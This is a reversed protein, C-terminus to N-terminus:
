HNPFLRQVHPAITMLTGLLYGLADTDVGAVSDKMSGTYAATVTPIDRQLTEFSGVGMSRAIALAREQVNRTLAIEVNSATLITTELVPLEFNKATQITDDREREFQQLSLEYVASLHTDPKQANANNRMAAINSVVLPYRKVTEGGSWRMSGDEDLSFEKMRRSPTIRDLAYMTAALTRSTDGSIGLIKAVKKAIGIRINDAYKQTFKAVEEPTGSVSERSGILFAERLDSPIEYGNAAAFTDVLPTLPYGLHHSAFLKALAFAQENNMGGQKTLMDMAFPISHVAHPIVRGALHQSVPHSDGLAREVYSAMRGAQDRTAGLSRYADTYRRRNGSFYELSLPTNAGSYGRDHLEIFLRLIGEYESQISGNEWLGSLLDHLSDLHQAVGQPYQPRSPSDGNKPTLRQALQALENNSLPSAAKISPTNM